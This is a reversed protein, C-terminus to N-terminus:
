AGRAVRRQALAAAAWCWAAATTGAQALLRASAPSLLDGLPSSAADVLIWSLNGAAALGWIAALAGGRVGLAVLLIPATLLFILLDTSDAVVVVVDRLAGSTLAQALDSMLVVGGFSLAVVVATAWVALREGPSATFGLGAKWLVAAFLALSAIASANTALLAAAHLPAMPDGPATAGGVLAAVALAVWSVAQLVWARRLHDGSAFTAAAALSAIAAAASSLAGSLRFLRAVDDPPTAAWAVVLVAVAAVPLWALPRSTM